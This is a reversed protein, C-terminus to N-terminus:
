FHIKRINGAYSLVVDLDSHDTYLGERTRSGYVRAGLLVVENELGMEELQAQALCLVTEEIEACSKGAFAKEPETKESILPPKSIAPMEIERKNIVYKWNDYQSEKLIGQAEILLNQAFQLKVRNDAGAIAVALLKNGKESLGDWVRERQEKTM